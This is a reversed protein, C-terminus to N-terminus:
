QDCELRCRGRPAARGDRRDLLVVRQVNRPGGNTTFKERAADTMKDLSHRVYKILMTTEELQGTDDPEDGVAFSVAHAGIRMFMHDVRLEPRDHVREGLGGRRESRAGDAWRGVAAVRLWGSAASKGDAGDVLVRESDVCRITEKIRSLM